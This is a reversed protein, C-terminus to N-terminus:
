SMILSLTQIGRRDWRARALKTTRPAPTKAYQASGTNRFLTAFKSERKSFYFNQSSVQSGFPQSCGPVPTKDLEMGYARLAATESLRIAFRIGEVLVKIDHDEVLYNAFIKPPDLPDKSKLTIYGRSKPHLVAPFIQISRSYNSSLEGVQGSVACDALFGGFYFQLDPDNPNEAYKSAM